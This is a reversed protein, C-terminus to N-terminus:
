PMVFGGNVSLVQGTVWSARDSALFIVANATDEPEGLRGLPYRRLVARARAAYREDGLKARLATERLERQPTNTAGPSVVNLTVGSDGVEQAISKVLAIVGGKAAAYYSLRAQGIRGADSALCVVRGYRQAVMHPLVQHLCLMAGVLNTGLLRTWDSASSELFTKDDFVAANNVFVDIRGFTSRVRDVMEGVSAADAIDAHFGLADGALSRAANAAGDGDLDAIAVKAGGAAFAHACALGIGRAGGTLLVVRDRFDIASGTM